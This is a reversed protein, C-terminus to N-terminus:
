RAAAARGQHRSRDRRRRRSVNRPLQIERRKKLFSLIWFPLGGGAAFALGLGPLLGAGVSIAILFVALGLAGATMLFRRPSWSLGAQALRVSLPVRTACRRARKSRSSRLRRGARAAVEAGLADARQAAPEARAVSPWRAARRGARRVPIPYVFVWVVGGIAVAVM